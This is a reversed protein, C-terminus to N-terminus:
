GSQPLGVIGTVGAAFSPAPDGAEIKGTRRPVLSPPLASDAEQMFGWIPTEAVFRRESPLWLVLDIEVLAPDVMGHRGPQTM